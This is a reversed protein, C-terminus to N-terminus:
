KSTTLEEIIVKSSLEETYEIIRNSIFYIDTIEFDSICEFLARNRNVIAKRFLEDASTFNAILQKRTEEPNLNSTKSEEVHEKKDELGPTEHKERKEKSDLLKITHQIHKDLENFNATERKELEELCEFKEKSTLLDLKYTKYRELEELYETKKTSEYNDKTISNELAELIQFDSYGCDKLATVINCPTGTIRYDLNFIANQEDLNDSTWSRTAGSIVRTSNRNGGVKIFRNSIKAKDAKEPSWKYDNSNEKEETNDQKLDIKVSKENFRDLLAKSLFKNKAISDDFTGTFPSTIKIGECFITWGRSEYLGNIMKAREPYTLPHNVMNNFYSITMNAEKMHISKIIQDVDTISSFNSEIISKGDKYFYILNNVDFDDGIYPKVLINFKINIPGFLLEYQQQGRYDIYDTFNLNVKLHINNKIFKDKDTENKFWIDVSNFTVNCAPDKLRPVVVERVYEGFVRGGYSDLTKITNNIISLIINLENESVKNKYVQSM